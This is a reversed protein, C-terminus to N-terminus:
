ATVIGAPEGSGGRQSRAPARQATGIGGDACYDHFVATHERAAPGLRSSAGVGLGHREFPCAVRRAPCREVDAKFGAGM